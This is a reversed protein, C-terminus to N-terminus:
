HEYIYIYTQRFHQTKKNTVLLKLLILNINRLLQKM